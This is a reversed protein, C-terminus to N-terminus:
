VFDQNYMCLVYMYLITANCNISHLLKCLIIYYLPFLVENLVRYLTLVYMHTNIHTVCVFDVM